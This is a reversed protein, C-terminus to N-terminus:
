SYFSLAQEAADQLGTQTDNMWGQVKAKLKGEILWKKIFEDAPSTPLEFGGTYNVAETSSATEQALVPALSAFLLPLLILTILAIRPM